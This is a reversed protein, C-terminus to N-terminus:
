GVPVLLPRTRIDLESGVITVFNHAERLLDDAERTTIDGGLGAEAAARRNAGAAFFAAWEGLEPAVLTLLTWASRIRGRGGTPRARAALVAAAARLAALHAKAYKAAPDPAILAEACCQEAAFLLERAAAPVPVSPGVGYSNRRVAM